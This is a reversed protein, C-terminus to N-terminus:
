ARAHALHAHRCVEVTEVAQHNGAPLGGRHGQADLTLAQGLRQAPKRANGPLAPVDIRGAPVDILGPRGAYRDEAGAGAQDHEVTLMERDHVHAGLAVSEAALQATELSVQLHLPKLTPRQTADEDAGRPDGLVTGPHLDQGLDIAMRHGCTLAADGGDSEM